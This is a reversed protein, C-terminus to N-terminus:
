RSVEFDFHVGLKDAKFDAPLRPLPSAALVARLATQDFVPAGSPSEVRADEVTGDRRIRFAITARTRRTVQPEYWNRSIANRVSVLYYSFPFDSVVGPAGSLGVRAEPSAAPAAGQTAATPQPPAPRAPQPAVPKVKEPVKKQPAVVEDRKVPVPPNSVLKEQPAAAAQEAPGGVLDVSYTGPLSVDIVQPRHFWVWGLLLAHIAASFVLSTRFSPAPRSFVM